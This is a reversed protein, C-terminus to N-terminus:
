TTSFSIGSFSVFANSAGTYVSVVGTTLVDVRTFLNNAVAPFVEFGTPRFGSPLTFVPTGYTVTGGTVLGRLEVRDGVKRYQAGTYGSGFNSWGNQFTVNTWTTPTMLVGSVTVGTTDVRTNGVILAKTAPVYLDRVGTAGYVLPMGRGEDLYTIVEGVQPQFGLWIGKRPTALGGVTFTVTGDTGVAVVTGRATRTTAGAIQDKLTQAIASYVDPV